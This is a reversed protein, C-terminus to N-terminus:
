EANNETTRANISVLRFSLSQFLNLHMMIRYRVNIMITEWTGQWLYPFYEYLRWGRMFPLLYLTELWINM